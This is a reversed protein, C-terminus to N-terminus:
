GSVWSDPATAFETPPVSHSSGVLALLAHATVDIQLYDHVPTQPFAGHVLEPDAAVICNNGNVQHELLFVRARARATRAASSDVSLLAEVTAATRALEPVSNPGVGGAHPGHEPVADILANTARVFTEGDGRAKAALATWPAWPEVELHRKCAQWLPAPARSGLAAVVQAAHWPVALLEPRAAYAILADSLEIGAMVALAVTGAVLAPETPFQDVPRGDLARVLEVELWRRARTAAGRGVRQSMLARVLIAARGHFMPSKRHQEGTRPSIGFTVRGKSDVRMALWAAAATIPNKELLPTDTQRVLVNETEFLYLADNPWAARLTDAKRELTQLMGESDLSNDRAVDPLLTVPRNPLALALGHKGVELIEAVQSLSVPRPARPYSLQCRLEARAQRGLGGFRSDGLAQVFARLIREGPPGDAVGACGCLGGRAYLSVIPTADPAGPPTPWNKLDRQWSLLARLTAHLTVREADPLPGPLPSLPFARSM